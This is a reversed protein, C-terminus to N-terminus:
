AFLISSLRRRGAVTQEHTPGLAEFFKLLQVRAAEDNWARNKSIIYLLHDMATEADGTGFLAVALDYRAQLDDPNKEVAEQLGGLAGKAAEAQDALDLAAKVGDLAPDDAKDAPIGAMFQKADDIRDMRILCMALGAVAKMDEPDHEALQRYIGGAGQFDGEEMAAEAQEYAAAVPDDGTEGGSLQILRDIFSKVESEPVAGMFGDAPRGGVFGYVAPISQIRMQQAIEPNQDIDLKVMKVAGKAATVAKELIPGLQKCPGCWPAWFDVIVPVDMSAELVDAQFEATSTDKILDAASAAAGLDLQM